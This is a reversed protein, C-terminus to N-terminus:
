FYPSFRLNQRKQSSCKQGFKNNNNSNPQFSKKIPGVNTQISKRDLILSISFIPSDKPKRRPRDTKGM